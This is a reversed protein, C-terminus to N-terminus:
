ETHHLTEIYSDSGYLSSNSIKEFTFLFEWYRIKGSFTGATLTEYM